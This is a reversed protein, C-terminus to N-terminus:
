SNTLPPWVLRVGQGWCVYVSLTAHARRDVHLPTMMRNDRGPRAPCWAAELFIEPIRGVAGLPSFDCMSCPTKSGCLVFDECSALDTWEHPCAPNWPSKHTWLWCRAEASGWVGEEAWLSMLPTLLLSGRELLSWSNSNSYWTMHTVFFQVWLFSLNM